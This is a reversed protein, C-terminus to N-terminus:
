FGDLEYEVTFVKLTATGTAPRPFTFYFTEVAGPAIEKPLAPESLLVELRTADPQTLSVDNVSLSIASPGSNLISVGVRLTSGDAAATTELLSIEAQIESGSSIPTGMNVIQEEILLGDVVLGAENADPLLFISIGSTSQDPLYNTAWTGPQPASLSFTMSNCSQWTVKAVGGEQLAAILARNAQTPPLLFFLIADTGEVWAAVGEEATLTPISGDAALQVTQIQFVTAAITLTSSGCDPTPIFLTPIFPTPSHTASAPPTTLVNQNLGCGASLILLLGSALRALCKYVISPHPKM